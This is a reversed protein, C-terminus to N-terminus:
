HTSAPPHGGPSPTAGRGSTATTSGGASVRSGGPTTPGLVCLGGAPVQSVQIGKGGNGREVTPPKRDSAAGGGAAPPKHDNSSGGGVAEAKNENTTTTTTNKSTTTTGNSKKESTKTVTTSNTGNKFWNMTVNTVEALAKSPAHFATNFAKQFNVLTMNWHDRLESIQISFQAPLAQFRKTEITWKGETKDTCNSKTFNFVPATWTGGGNTTATHVDPKVTKNSALSQTFTQWLFESCNLSTNTAQPTILMTASKSSTSAEHGAPAAAHGAETGDTVKSCGCALLVLVWLAWTM